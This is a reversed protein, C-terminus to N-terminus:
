SRGAPGNVGRCGRPRLRCRRRRTGPRTFCRCPTRTPMRPAPGSEQRNADAWSHARYTGHERLERDRADQWRPGSVRGTNATPVTRYCDDCFARRALMAARVSRSMRSRPHRSGEVSRAAQETTFVRDYSLIRLIERDRETLRYAVRLVLEDDVRPRASSLAERGLLRGESQDPSAPATVHTNEGASGSRDLSGPDSGTQSGPDTGISQDAATGLDHRIRGTGAPLRIVAGGILPFLATRM